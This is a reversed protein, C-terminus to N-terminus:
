VQVAADSTEDATSKVARRERRHAMWIAAFMIAMVDVFGAIAAWPLEFGGSQLNNYFSGLPILVPWLVLVNNVCAYAIGYVLGLGFLFAMERMGMGYGVHYLAYLAAAAVVGPIPGLSASLRTQIFGRFFVAEFLGVMLSMTLLPVWDIPAPLDYGYLTLFFQILGLVLGLGVAQRWNKATLGLDALPRGRMWVTYIVPGVVGLILGAAYCLFLGLTRDVTFVQFALYLAGVVGVYLLLVARIDRGDVHRGASPVLGPALLVLLGATLPIMLGYVLGNGIALFLLAAILWTVWIIRRRPALLANM